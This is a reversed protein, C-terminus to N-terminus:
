KPLFLYSDKKEETMNEFNPLKKLNHQRAESFNITSLQRRWCDCGNRLANARMLMFLKQKFPIYEGYKRLLENYNKYYKTETGNWEYSCELIIGDMEVWCHPAIFWFPRSKDFNNLYCGHLEAMKIKSKNSKNFVWGAVMYPNGLRNIKICDYLNRTNDVCQGVIKDEKQKQLMHKLILEIEPKDDIKTAM